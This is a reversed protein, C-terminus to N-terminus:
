GMLTGAPSVTVIATDDIYRFSFRRHPFPAMGGLRETRVSVDLALCASIIAEELQADDGLLRVTAKRIGRLNAAILATEVDSLLHRDTCHEEPM